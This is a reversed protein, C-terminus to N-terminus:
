RGASLCAMLLSNYKTQEEDARSTVCVPCDAGVLTVALETNSFTTMTKYFVNGAEIDPVIIIDAQGAVPSSIGKTRAAEADVACKLDLPGDVVVNGLEGRGAMQKIAEYDLTVPFKPSVKETCHILAVRPQEIGFKACLDACYRIMQVRQELTPNPIVAVDSVFMLKDYAPNKMVSVHSLVRGRQLIGHEKNLVARLVNDTNVIGKMILDAKGARVLAVAKASSDDVDAGHVIEYHGAHPALAAEHSTMLDKNGVFIVDAYGEQMARLLASFSHDDHAEIAAIRVRPRGKMRAAMQQFDTIPTM